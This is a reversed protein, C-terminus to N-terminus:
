DVSEGDQKAHYVRKARCVFVIRPRTACRMVAAQGATALACAPPADRRQTARAFRLAVDAAAREADSDPPHLKVHPVNSGPGSRGARVPLVVVGMTFAITLALLLGALRM